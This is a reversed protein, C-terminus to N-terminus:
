IKAGTVDGILNVEIFLSCFLGRLDLNNHMKLNSRPDAGRFGFWINFGVAATDAKASVAPMVM